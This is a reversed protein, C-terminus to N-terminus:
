AEAAVGAWGDIEIVVEVVAPFQNPMPM